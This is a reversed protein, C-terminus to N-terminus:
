VALSPEFVRVPGAATDYMIVGCTEEVPIAPHLSTAEEYFSRYIGAELVALADHVMQAFNDPLVAANAALIDAELFHTLPINKTIKNNHIMPMCWTYNIKSIRIFDITNAQRFRWNNEIIGSTRRVHVDTDELCLLLPRLQANRYADFLAVKDMKHLFASYDRRASHIHNDCYRIGFLYMEGYDGTSDNNCYFCRNYRMVLSTPEISLSMTRNFIIKPIRLM